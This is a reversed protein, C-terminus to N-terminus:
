KRGGSHNSPHSPSQGEVSRRCDADHRSANVGARIQDPPGKNPRAHRYSRGHSRFNARGGTSHAFSHLHQSHPCDSGDGELQGCDMRTKSAAWVRYIRRGYRQGSWRSLAITQRVSIALRTTSKYGRGPPTIIACNGYRFRLPNNAIYVIM